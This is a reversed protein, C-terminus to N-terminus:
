GRAQGSTMDYRAYERVKAFGMRAYVPFGMPSAQLVAIRCGRREGARMAHATVAFGLGRGRHRDLTAVWYVGAIDGTAVLMSSCVPEGESMGLFMTVHPLSRLEETFSLAALEVPYGFSAFAIRGFQELSAADDVRRFTVGPAEAVPLRETSLIMVPIPPAATFGRQELVPGTTAAEDISFQIRFPVSSPAYYRLVRELTRGIKYAPRKLFGQNFEAVPAGSNTVVFDRSALAEGTKSTEAFIALAHAFNYDLADM